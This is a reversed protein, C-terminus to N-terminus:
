PCTRCPRFGNNTYVIEPSERNHEAPRVNAPPFDYAGGLTLRPYKDQVVSHISAVDNTTEKKPPKFVSIRDESWEFVNGLMDFLGLDNPLLSGCMWARGKSNDQYWAYAGLLEASHGYYRSTLAGARCAYEWEARTPLRYGTRQLVDGPITMGEAYAGAENPLYCWQNTPLGEQESLWNCYHAATYWACAIWPGQPDPSWRNLVSPSASAEHPGVGIKALKLFRQFQEITVEKAAMAYRRPIRMRRPTEVRNFDVRDTDTPPSGMRFEVPGEIVAFTQGQSNVFWRRGGLDKVKMSEADAEKLKDQQGWKRLTWGAAGHIGSDPDTRYLELLKGALSEREGPSLGETGYTGLALILARRMSIEPHFLIADMNLTAPQLRRTALSNLRDLESAITRPDAGLPNLWNLIFSRLRPDASHRLLPWVEEAQGLRVLAVAARAQREALRDRTEEQVVPRHWVSAAVLPGEPTTRTVSWSVPRYGQDMLERCRQLHAAPDLGYIPTAEFSTADGTWIASYRRDPHGAKMIEAFAPLDRIPDLDPDDNMKGFDADDNKVLERLWQLSREVLHRGKMKDSLPVAKSALSFARAADYRLEADQPQKEIAGELSELPKDLGEALEAAVVAALYLKSREPTEEKRFRALESQADQMKGLRALSIVRYQRAPISEPDKGIVVQLDDLAKQDEGLRSNAMARTLRADLDDSKRRLKRNATAVAARARDISARPKSEGSITLDLLLQDSLAAQNQEFNWGFQDRYAQGTIATGPPRGWVGCDRTRGDAGVMVHLTRPILEEDMFKDQFEIEEDATMGVYIRADDDGSKEVWLAAYRGTLKGGTATAVYGAVDVPLFQDKRNREDQQRVEDATLGSAIRWNRGDRAWVVAVRVVSDDAYPRFRVPRYGSKRLAEATTLFEDLPMTQCFGFREGLTGQAAEIRSVLSADPNTWSPDLPRDNWSYKADKRLEAQFIPLVQEAWKEVAPFLIVYARSDSVKLLEALLAPDDSAYDALIRTALMHETEPREKTKFITVLPAKLRSGVPRLTDLWSGLLVPNVSVLTRAVKGEEAEWEANDPDYRALAGALPLLSADGPKASKLAIWLKPILTPGYSQLSDCLVTVEIPTASLLRNFLYDVQTGDVPLLAISAHLHERSRDDTNRLIRVLQPGAWRRYAAIQRDISPVDATGATVLKEVLGSAKLRGYGEFSGWTLLGLLVLAILTRGGHVRGAQKMMIRQPATWDRKRTFWRIDAWELPSPLHRNEPKANWLSSREALRLGARGRRTERQKRTLWDRLSPVLYDHTLQYYGGGPSATVQGDGPGAPETPTILRLDNDLIHILEVFGRPRNAYAAAQQLEAESRMQGKIDAGTEPLLAKLVAQAAQQHLHHRPNARPSSFTEELFTVGVGRAGGMARLTAPTWPRGKMMETFLALRVSVVKGDEALGSIAQDLFAHQDRSIGRAQEPLNGYAAGFATLVKRAHRLDFLDVLATNTGQILEIELVDMFRSVALWFDDRVLVVAQLHEGDCQRLAKVLEADEMGRRAHLWQEFQDLVVLAKQGSRLVRGTRIAALSAVLGGRPPLGPCVQRLGRLLRHETDEATADVYVPSVHKALRPLLGAKVLSSKGCGSPGYTLGVRFTKDPDATEIRTKWFRLSDPLGERDRPGPLLELFFDADDEDFPRLGKPIMKIHPQDSDSARPTIPPRTIEQTSGPPSGAAAIPTVPVAPSAPHDLFYRLDEAM